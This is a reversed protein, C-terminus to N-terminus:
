QILAVPAGEDRRRPSADVAARSHRRRARRDLVSGTVRVAVRPERSDSEPSSWPSPARRAGDLPTARASLSHGVSLPLSPLSAPGRLSLCPASDSVYPSPCCASDSDCLSPDLTATRTM